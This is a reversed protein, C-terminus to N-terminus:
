VARLVQKVKLVIEINYAQSAEIKEIAELPTLRKQGARQQGYYEILDCIALLQAEPCVMSGSLQKPFGKGDAREHHQEIIKVVDPSINMKKSKLFNQAYKPHNLFCEREDSRLTEIYALDPNIPHESKVLAVDHFLGALALDEPKGIGTAMSLLCAVINLKIGLSLNELTVFIKLGSHAITLGIYFSLM